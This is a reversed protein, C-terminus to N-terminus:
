HGNDSGKLWGDFSIGKNNRATLFLNLASQQQPCKLLLLRGAVSVRGSDLHQVDLQSSLEFIVQSIEGRASM